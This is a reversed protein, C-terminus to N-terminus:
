RRLLDKLKAKTTNTKPFPKGEPIPLNLFGCLMEWGQGSAVNIELFKDDGRFARRVNEQHELHRQLEAKTDIEIKGPRGVIRKHLVHVLLSRIREEPDRNSFLIFADPFRSRILSYLAPSLEFFAEYEALAPHHDGAFIARSIEGGRRVEHISKLGLIKMAHHLSTTGTKALGVNVIM